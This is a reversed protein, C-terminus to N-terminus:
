PLSDLSSSSSSSLSLLLLQTATTIRQDDHCPLYYCKLQAPLKQRGPQVLSYYYKKVGLFGSKIVWNPITAGCLVYHHRRLDHLLGDTLSGNAKRIVHLLNKMRRGMNSFRPGLTVDVEDIVVARIQRASLIYHQKRLLLAHDVNKSSQFKTHKNNKNATNKGKKGQREEDDDDKESKNPTTSQVVADNENNDNKNRNNNNKEFKDAKIRKSSKSTHESSRSRKENQHKSLTFNKKSKSKNNNDNM